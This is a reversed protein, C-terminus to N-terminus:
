LDAGPCNDDRKEIKSFRPVVVIVVEFIVRAASNVKVSEVIRNATPQAASGATLEVGVAALGEGADGAVEDDGVVGASVVGAVLGLGAALGGAAADGEGVALPLLGAAM